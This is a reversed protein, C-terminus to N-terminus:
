KAAAINARHKALDAAIVLGIPALIGAISEITNFIEPKMVILLSIVGIYGWLAHYRLKGLEM